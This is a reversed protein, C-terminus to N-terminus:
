VLAALAERHIHRSAFIPVMEAAIRKLDATRGQGAYLHALELSVLSTDYPIGEAMFGDRAALLLMEARKLQGLGRAIKGRVWRRRNQVWPENFSRYLPRAEMYLKQAEGFHGLEALVFILNHRACLLLRPERESDILDLSRSLAPVCDESRGMYNYVTSLNVLARGARHREEADEHRLRRMSVLTICADEVIEQAREEPVRYANFVAPLVPSLRDLIEACSVFPREM